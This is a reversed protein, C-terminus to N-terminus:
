ARRRRALLGAVGLLAVSGPAPVYSSGSFSGETSWRNTPLKTTADISVTGGGIANLVTNTFAWDDALTAFPATSVAGSIGYAAATASGGLADIFASTWNYRVDSISDSSFLAGASSWTTATGTPSFLGIGGPGLTVTFLLQGAPVNPTTAVSYFSIAGTLLYNHTFLGGGLATSTAHTATFNVQLRADMTKPTLGGNGDDVVLTFLNNAVAETISFSSGSVASGSLTFAGSNVDSAFSYYTARAPAAACALALAAAAVAPAPRSQPRCLRRFM